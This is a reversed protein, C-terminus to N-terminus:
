KRRKFVKQLLPRWLRLSMAGRDSGKSARSGWGSTIQGGDPCPRPTMPTDRFSGLCFARLLSGPPSFPLTPRGRSHARRPRLPPREPALRRVSLVAAVTDRGVRRREAGAEPLRAPGQVGTTAGGEEPRTTVREPGGGPTRGRLPRACTAGSGSEM